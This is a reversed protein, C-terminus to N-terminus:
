FRIYGQLGWMTQGENAVCTVSGNLAALGFMYTCYRSELLNEGFVSVEMRENEGFAYSARAGLLEAEDLKDSLDATALSNSSEDRYAYDAQLSLTGNRLTIEKNVLLNYSVEPAQQLEHGQEDFPLPSAETIETDLLGLGASLFLTPTPSWILEVEVGQSEAKPINGFAPGTIPDVFFAQKDKWEYFFASINLNVTNEALSMKAGLEFSDLTEPTSDALLFGTQPGHLFEVDYRGSRFGRSYSGWLMTNPNIHWDLGIKGGWEEAVLDGRTTDEACFQGPIACVPTATGNGVQDAATSRLLEETFFTDVAFGTIDMFGVFHSPIEKTDDTYRLGLTLTLDENIDYEIQGYPSWVSNEMTAISFSMIDSYGAGQYGCTFAQSVGWLGLSGGAIAPDGVPVQGIESCSPPALGGTILNLPPAAVPIGVGFRINQALVSDEQFFYIGAIWRLKKDQASQIRFEQSIQEFEQDQDISINEEPRNLGAAISVPTPNINGQGGSDTVFRTMSDEYATISTLSGWDFDVDVKVWAGFLEIDHNDAGSHGINEWQPFSADVGQGNVTNYEVGEWILQQDHLNTDPDAADMLGSPDTRTGIVRQPDVQSDEKGYHLNGTVRLRESPQFAITARVSKQDKEGYKGGGNTINNWIGDRDYSKVALRAAASEGLQFTGAAEAEIRSYRGLTLRLIGDTDGGVVPMKSIFNLAGGTTNRGFLANQPGRLIEVREMDYIGLNTLYPSSMTVDDIYVGVSGPSAAFFDSTGIGRIAIARNAHNQGSLNINPAHNVIDVVRLVGLDNVTEGTFAQMAIPVDQLSEERKQATVIIEEIQAFATSAALSLLCAAVAWQQFPRKM